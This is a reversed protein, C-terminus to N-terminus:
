ADGEGGWEAWIREAMVLDEPRTIKFNMSDGRVLHVHHGYKAALGAEDTADADERAARTVIDRLVDARFCQPTQAAVLVSRDLTKAIAENAIQHVTDPLSIGPFAAGHERAADLTAHFTELSFFPRVADHIAILDFGDGAAELGRRVSQLRTDGGAVFTVREGPSSKVADVLKEMVPVIVRTVVPDFLFREVARQVLPKGGLPQFQKPVDGGFRTGSGAAPIIVLIREADAM